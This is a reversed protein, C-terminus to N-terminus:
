FANRGGGNRQLRNLTIKRGHIDLCSSSQGTEGGVILYDSFQVPEPVILDGLNVADCVYTWECALMLTHTDMLHSTGERHNDISTCCWQFFGSNGKALILFIILISSSTFTRSQITRQLM